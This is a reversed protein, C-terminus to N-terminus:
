VTRSPRLTRNLVKYKRRYAVAAMSLKQALSFPRVDANKSLERNMIHPTPCLSLCPASLGRFRSHHDVCLHHPDARCVPEPLVSLYFIVLNNKESFFLHASFHVCQIFFLSFLFLNMYISLFCQFSLCCELLFPQRQTPFLKSPSWTLTLNRHTYERLTIKVKHFFLFLFLLLLVVLDKICIFM